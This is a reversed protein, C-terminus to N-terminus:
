LQAFVKGNVHDEPNDSSDCGSMAESPSKKLGRRQRTGRQHTPLFQKLRTMRHPKGKKSGPAPTRACM